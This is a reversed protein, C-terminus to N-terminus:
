YNVNNNATEVAISLLEYEPNFIWKGNSDYSGYAAKGVFRSAMQNGLDALGEEVLTEVSVDYGRGKAVNILGNTFSVINEGYVNQFDVAASNKMTEINALAANYNTENEYHNSGTTTVENFSCVQGITYEGTAPNYLQKDYQIAGNKIAEHMCELTSLSTLTIDTRFDKLRTREAQAQGTTYNETLEFLDILFASLHYYEASQDMWRKAFVIEEELAKENVTQSGKVYFEYIDGKFKGTGDGVYIRLSFRSYESGDTALVSFTQANNDFSFVFDSQDGSVLEYPNQDFIVLGDPDSSESSKLEYVSTENETLTLFSELDLSPYQNHEGVLVTLTLLEDKVGDSITLRVPFTMGKEENTPALVLENTEADVHALISKGEANDSKVSYSLNEVSGKQLNFLMRTESNELIQSDQYVTSDWSATFETYDGQDVVNVTLVVTVEETGDTATVVVNVSENQSAELTTLRLVDDVVTVELVDTASALVATVTVADGDADSTTFAVDQTTHENQTVQTTSLTLVPATNEGSEGGDVVNVTLNKKTTVTGDSVGVVVTVTGNTDVEKTTVTVVGSSQNITATAKSTDSSTVSYTLSDGDADSSTATVTGTSSEDISLTQASLTLVPAKNSPETGGGGNDDSGGGGCATM